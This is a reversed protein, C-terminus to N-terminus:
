KETMTHVDKIAKERTKIVHKFMLESDLDEKNIRMTTEGNKGKTRRNM